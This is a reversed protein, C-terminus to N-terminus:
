FGGSLIQAKLEDWGVAPQPNAIDAAIRRDLLRRMDDTVPVDDPQVTAWLQVALDMREDPPLAKAAALVEDKTM